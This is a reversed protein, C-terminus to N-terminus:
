HWPGPYDINEDLEVVEGTAPHVRPSGCNPCLVYPGRAHLNRYQTKKWCVCCAWIFNMADAMLPKYCSPMREIFELHAHPIVWRM